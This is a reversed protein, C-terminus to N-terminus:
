PPVPFRRAHLVWSFHQFSHKSITTSPSFLSVCSIINFRISSSGNLEDIITFSLRTTLSREHLQNGLVAVDSLYLNRHAPYTAQLFSFHFLTKYSFTSRLSKNCSRSCFPLVLIPQIKMGCTCCAASPTTPRQQIADLPRDRKNLSNFMRAIHSQRFSCFSSSWLKCAHPPPSSSHM